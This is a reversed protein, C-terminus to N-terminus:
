RKYYYRSMSLRNHGLEQTLVYDCAQDITSEDNAAEKTKEDANYKELLDRLEEKNNRLEEIREQAYEYRFSHSANYEQGTEKCALKIDEYYDKLKKEYEQEQLKEILDALREFKEERHQFYLTRTRGGKAKHITITKNERDVEARAIERVRFGGIAQAEAIMRHTEELNERIANPDVYSNGKKSERGASWWSVRNEDNRLYAKIDPRIVELSKEMASIHIKITGKSFGDEALQQFYNDIIKQLEETSVKKLHSERKIGLEELYDCFRMMAREYRVKTDSTHIFPSERVGTFKEMKRQLEGKKMGKGIEYLEDLVNKVLYRVRNRM